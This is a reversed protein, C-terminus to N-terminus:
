FLNLCPMAILVYLCRAGASLISKITADSLQFLGQSPNFCVGLCVPCHRRDLFQQVLKIDDFDLLVVLNCM